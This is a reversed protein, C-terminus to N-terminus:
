KQPKFTALCENAILAGLVVAGGLLARGGPHEGAFLWVLAIGFVIELLALLSVEPGSLTRAVVISLACPIALQTVGLFALWAVDSATASLPWALPLALASSLVAGIAVAPLLDVAPGAANPSRKQLAQTLTWQVAAATPVALAVWSGLMSAGSQLMPAYMYAIGAAAAAIAAWTRLAIPTGLAVRSVVATFLPGLAMTILVNAVSTLTLAVMFATFMVSWCVGSAWLAPSRWAVLRWANRGQLVPLVVLLGVITFASRWFTVEFSRAADLQRSVLGATSWLLAVLVMLAVAQSRSLPTM